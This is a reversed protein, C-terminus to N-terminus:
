CDKSISDSIREFLRRKSQGRQKLKRERDRADKESLYAEYYILRWERGRTSSRNSKSNHESVRRRLDSTYGVYFKDRSKLVYVYYM